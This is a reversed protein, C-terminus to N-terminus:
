HMSEMTLFAAPTLIPVGRWPHLVLLDADSSVLKAAQCGLALALFKADKADRCAGNALDESTADVDWLRSREAVLACFALRQQLVVRQLESM